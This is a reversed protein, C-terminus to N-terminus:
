HGFNCDNPTQVRNKAFESGVLTIHALEVKCDFLGSIYKGHPQKIQSIHNCHSLVKVEHWAQSFQCRAHFIFSAINWHKQGLSCTAANLYLIYQQSRRLPQRGRLLGPDVGPDVGPTLPRNWPSKLLLFNQSPRVSSRMSPCVHRHFYHNQHLHKLNSSRWFGKHYLIMCQSMQFGQDIATILLFLLPM